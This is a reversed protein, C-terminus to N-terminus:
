DAALDALLRELLAEEHVARGEEAMAAQLAPEWPSEPLRLVFPLGKPAARYTAADFRWPRAGPRILLSAAIGLGAPDFDAQVRLEEGRWRDLLARLAAKPQGDTCVLPASRPGLRDAAAAVVTPNECLFLREGGLRATSSRLQRLTLRLPEGVRSHAALTESLLDDGIAPLNLVLVSSSLPDLEVGVAAWAVRRDEVPSGSLAAALRLGLTGLPTGADLAHADGVLSTALEALLVGESPLRSALALARGLLLAGRVPDGEALRKVLGSGRLEAWWAQVEPRPDDLLAFADAWAARRLGGAEAPRGIPGLLLEVAEALGGGTAERLLGDLADLDVVVASGTPYRGFLRAVADMQEPSAEAQRLKGGLLEGRQLKKRLRDLLWALGPSGLLAQAQESTM